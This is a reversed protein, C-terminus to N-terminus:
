EPVVLDGRVAAERLSAKLAACGTFVAGNAGGAPLSARREVCQDVSEASWQVITQDWSGKRAQVQAHCTECTVPVLPRDTLRIDERM